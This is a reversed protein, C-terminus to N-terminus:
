WLSAYDCRSVLSATCIHKNVQVGFMNGELIQLNKVYLDSIFIISNWVILEMNRRM